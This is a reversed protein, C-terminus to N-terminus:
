HKLNHILFLSRDTFASKASQDPLFRSSVCHQLQFRPHWPFDHPENRILFLNIIRFIEGHTFPSFSVTPRDSFSINDAKSTKGTVIIRLIYISLESLSTHKPPPYRM